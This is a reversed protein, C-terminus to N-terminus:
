KGTVEDYITALFSGAVAYFPDFTTVLILWFSLCKFCTLIEFGIRLYSNYYKAYLGKTHETIPEFNTIFWAALFTKIAIEM